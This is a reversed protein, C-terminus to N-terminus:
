QDTLSWPCRDSIPSNSYYDSDPWLECSPTRGCPYLSRTIQTVAARILDRPDNVRGDIESRSLAAKRKRINNEPGAWSIPSRRDGMVRAPDRRRRTMSRSETRLASKM